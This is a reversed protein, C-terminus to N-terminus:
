RGVEGRALLMDSDSGTQWDAPRGLGGVSGDAGQRPNGRNLANSAKGHFPRCLHRHCPKDLTPGTM